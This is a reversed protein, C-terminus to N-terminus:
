KTFAQRETQLFEMCVLLGSRYQEAIAAYDRLADTSITKDPNGDPRANLPRGSPVNAPSAVHLCAAPHQLKLQALKGAIDDRDKQLADNSRKTEDAFQICAQQDVNQQATLLAPVRIAKEHWGLGVGGLFVALLALAIGGAIYPNLLM